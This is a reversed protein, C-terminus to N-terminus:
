CKLFVFFWVFILGLCGGRWVRGGWGRFIITIAEIKIEKLKQGKM